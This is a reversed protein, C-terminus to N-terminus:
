SEVTNLMTTLTHSLKSAYKIIAQRGTPSLSLLTTPKADVFKKEIILFEEAELKSMHSSLNGATLGLATRVLTFPVQKRPLLFMMIALRVPTHITSDVDLISKIGENPQSEETNM